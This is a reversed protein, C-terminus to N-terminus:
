GVSLGAEALASTWDSDMGVNGRVQELLELLHSAGESAKGLGHESCQESVCARGSGDWGRPAYPSHSHDACYIIIKQATLLLQVPRSAENVGVAPVHGHVPMSREDQQAREEKVGMLNMLDEAQVVATASEISCFKDIDMCVSSEFTLTAQILM